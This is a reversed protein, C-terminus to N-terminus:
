LKEGKLYSVRKSIMKRFAPMTMSLAGGPDNKRGRACEDHGIIYNVNFDPNIDSQWLCFNILSKEQAPNFAHYYGPEINDEKKTINRVYKNNIVLGFWSKGKADLKGANCIEMGMCYRSMGVHGLYNSEGAHWGIEDLAQNRARYIIGANDMVLCALGQRALHNLTDIANQRGKSFRGATFHVVLGLAQGTKTLYKGHTQVDIDVVEIHPVEYNVTDAFSQEQRPPEKLNEERIKRQLDALADEAKIYNEVKDASKQDIQKLYDYYSKIMKEKKEKDKIFTKILAVIIPTVLSLITTWM